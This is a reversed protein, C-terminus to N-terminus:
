RPFLARCDAVHQFVGGSRRLLALKALRHRTGAPPLVLPDGGSDTPWEIIGTEGGVATRAPILWFDGPKYTGQQFRVQVGGELPQWDGTMAVGDVTAEDGTQDWRRLVRHGAPDLTAPAPAGLVVTRTSPTVVAIRRLEGHQDVLDARDDALEAWQDAAFGLVDDKGVDAVVLEGGSQGTIATAISGNDRSWKFRAQDRGGGRHIEVRYLQNELGRYGPTPPLICLPDPTTAQPLLRAQLAGGGAAFTDVQERLTDWEAFPTDCGATQGPDAVPLLHVQWVTQSRHTTDPGGLAKELLADDQLPSVHREWVRLFALYLGDAAPLAAGPLHPQETLAVDGENRCLLGDVYFHGRGIGVQAGDVRLEFGPATKPAGTRGVVDRDATEVREQQLAQQENLDADLQIRGQQWLVRSYHREPRHTERSVDARM